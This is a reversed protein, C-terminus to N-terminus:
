GHTYRSSFTDSFTPLFSLPATAISHSPPEDLSRSIPHLSCRADVDSVTPYRLQIPTFTSMKATARHLFSTLIGFSDIAYRIVLQCVQTTTSLRITTSTCTRAPRPRSIKPIHPWAIEKTLAASIKLWVLGRSHPQGRWDPPAGCFVSCSGSGSDPGAGWMPIRPSGNPQAGQVGVM